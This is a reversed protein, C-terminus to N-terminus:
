KGKRNNWLDISEVAVLKEIEVDRKATERFAVPGSAGCVKCECHSYVIFSSELLSVKGQTCVWDNACFPCSIMQKLGGEGSGFTKEIETKM